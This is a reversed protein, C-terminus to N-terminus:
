ELNNSLLPPLMLLNLKITSIQIKNDNKASRVLLGHTSKDDNAKSMLIKESVM